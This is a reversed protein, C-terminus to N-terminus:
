MEMCLDGRERGALRARDSPHPRDRVACSRAHEVIREIGRAIQSVSAHYETKCDNTGLMVILMDAPQNRNLADEVCDLGCIEPNGKERFFPLGEASGKRQWWISM